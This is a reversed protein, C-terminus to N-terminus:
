NGNSLHLLPILESLDDIIHTPYHAELESRTAAGTTVAIVYGCGANKGEEIDVTTDGIKAVAMADAVGARRMLEEMMFPNPRGEEVEDSAIYDDVLGKQKWQLRHIIADAISKPFGTNLAILIGKEKLQQFIDETNKMPKVAPDYEYFDIMEKVFDTHIDQVTDMTYEEGLEDLVIKIADIKKYGMLPNVQSPYVEYGNISFANQFAKGVFNDDAVTTGAMDFVVLKIM